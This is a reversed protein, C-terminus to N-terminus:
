HNKNQQKKLSEQKTAKEQTHIQQTIGELQCACKVYAFTQQNEAHHDKKNCGKNGSM